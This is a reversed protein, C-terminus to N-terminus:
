IAADTANLYEALSRRWDPLVVGVKAAKDLDLV